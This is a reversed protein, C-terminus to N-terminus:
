IPLKVVENPQDIVVQRNKGYMPHYHFKIMWDILIMFLDYLAMFLNYMMCCMSAGILYFCRNVVIYTTQPNLIISHLIQHYWFTLLHTSFVKDKDFFYFPHNLLKRSHIKSLFINYISIKFCLTRENQTLM